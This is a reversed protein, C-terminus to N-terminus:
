RFMVALILAVGVGLVVGILILASHNLYTLQENAQQLLQVVGSLDVAEM